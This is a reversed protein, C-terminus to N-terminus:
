AHVSSANPRCACIGCLSHYKSRFVADEAATPGELPLVHILATNPGPQAPRVTLGILVSGAGDALTLDEGQPLAPSSQTTTTQAAAGVPAAALLAVVPGLIM